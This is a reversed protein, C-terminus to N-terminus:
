LERRKPRFSGFCSSESGIVGFIVHEQTRGTIESGSRRQRATYDTTSYVNSEGGRPNPLCGFTM